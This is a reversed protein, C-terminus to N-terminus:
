AHGLHHDFFGIAAAFSAVGALAGEAVNGRALWTLGGVVAAAVLALLLIIATRVPLLAPKNRDMGRGPMPNEKLSM